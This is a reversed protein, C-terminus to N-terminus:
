YLAQGTEKLTVSTIWESHDGIGFDSFSSFPLSEGKSGILRLERSGRLPQELQVKKLVFTRSGSGPTSVHDPEDDDYSNNNSSWNVCIAKGTAELISLLEEKSPVKGMYLDRSLAEEVNEPTVAISTDVSPRQPMTLQTHTERTPEM